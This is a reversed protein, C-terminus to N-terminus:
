PLSSWAVNLQEINTISIIGNVHLQVHLKLNCCLSCNFIYKYNMNWSQGWTPTAYRLISKLYQVFIHIAGPVCYKMSDVSFHIFLWPLMSPNSQYITHICPILIKLVKWKLNEEVFYKLLHSNTLGRDPVYMWELM